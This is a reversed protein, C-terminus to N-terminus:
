SLAELAISGPDLTLIEAALVLGGPAVTVPEALLRGHLIPMSGNGETRHLLDLDVGEVGDVAHIAGIVGSSAVLPAFGRRDFSYADRLAREVDALVADDAYDPHILLRAALRFYAPRYSAVTIRVFPDGLTRLANLLNDFVGGLVPEGGPGAVTVVIRRAEGDWVTDARAKTIGAFGRAFDEYNRLSVVRGLTLTTVPANERATALTEPDQGGAAPLPNFVDRLGLPRDLATKLADTAVSGAIGIGKRYTAVINNRGTPPRAGSVGDGFQVITSGDDNTRTEFVNATPQQGYLTAAEHWQIDGIRVVLTSAAGSETAASVHTLPAQKLRMSQFPRGPNGDGLVEQTTEGHTAPAVNAHVAATARDYAAALAAELRLLTHTGDALVAESLTAVEAVPEVDKGAPVPKFASDDVTLFGEFGGPARLHWVFTQSGPAVPVREALMVVLTGPALAETLAPNDPAALMLGEAVVEVQARRGRIVLRHGEALGEILGDLEIEDGQIPLAIPTEAFALEESGGYVSTTRYAAGEFTTLSDSTDLTLRTVRASVAYDARGDDVAADIRYLEVFDAPRTLAVWSGAVFREQIADLHIRRAAEDITFTWDVKDVLEYLLRTAAALLNPHPANWGFLSARVRLAFLRLGSPAGAGAAVSDLPETWEIRTRNDQAFPEVRALQRIDWRDSALDDDFRETGVIAILDGTKLETAVGEVWAVTDNNSPLVLRSQRPKLANWAVRAEITEITEFTQATEGPGPISQVRTAIPIGVAAVAASAGPPDDMLFVLDTSAAVGPRLRYGILRGLEVLSEPETATGLWAENANREQYFALVDCVCSWADIVAISFDDEERSKLRALAPNEEASLRALQSRKFEAYGGPRYVVAPLGSRNYVAGPTAAAIGTCCGCDGADEPLDALGPILPPLASM